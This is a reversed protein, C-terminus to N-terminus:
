FFRCSLLYIFGLVLVFQIMYLYNLDKNVRYIKDTNKYVRNDIVNIKSLKNDIELKYSDILDNNIKISNSFSNINKKLNSELLKMSIENLKNYENFLNQLEIILTIIIKENYLEEKEKQNNIKLLLSEIKNTNDIKNKINEM